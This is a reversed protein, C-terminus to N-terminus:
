FYRESIKVNDGPFIAINEKRLDVTIQNKNTGRIVHLTNENARYTYGGAIAAVDQATM